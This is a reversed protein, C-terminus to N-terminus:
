EVNVDQVWCDHKKVQRGMKVRLPENFVPGATVLTHFEGNEGCPDLGRREIERVTAPDLRRGLYHRGLVSERIVVITAEFGLRWWETLLSRRDNQWLPLFARIQASRCVSEEWDRHSHIDIDGFV